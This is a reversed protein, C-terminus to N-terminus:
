RVTLTAGSSRGTVSPDYMLGAQAPLATFVGPTVARLVYQLSRTGSLDPAYFEARDAYFDRGGYWYNWDFTDNDVPKELGFGREDLATFGAPIPDILQLHRM